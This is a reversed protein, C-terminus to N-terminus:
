LYKIVPNPGYSDFLVLATMVRAGCNTEHTKQEADLETDVLIKNFEKLSPIISGNRRGFSDYVILKNKHAMVAIWHSGPLNSKDLNLIAYEGHSLQPIRDSSFVGRFKEKFLKKGLNDLTSAFTTGNGLVPILYKTLVENYIKEFQNKNM